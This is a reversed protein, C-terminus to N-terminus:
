RGIKGGVWKTAKMLIETLSEGLFSDLTHLLDSAEDKAGGDHLMREKKLVHIITRM